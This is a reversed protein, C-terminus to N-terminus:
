GLRGTLFPSLGFAQNIRQTALETKKKEDIQEQTLPQAKPKPPNLAKQLDMLSINGVSFERFSQPTIRQQGMMPMFNVMQNGAPVKYKRLTESYERPIYVGSPLGISEFFKKQSEIDSLQTTEKKSRSLLDLNAQDTMLGSSALESRLKNEIDSKEAVVKKLAEARAGTGYFDYIKKALEVRKKGEETQFYEAEAKQRTLNAIAQREIAPRQKEYQEMAFGM